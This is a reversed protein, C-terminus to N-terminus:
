CFHIMRISVHISWFKHFLLIGDFSIAVLHSVTVNGDKTINEFKDNDNLVEKLEDISLHTLLGLTSMLAKNEAM